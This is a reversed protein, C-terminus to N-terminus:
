LSADRTGMSVTAVESHSSQSMVDKSLKSGGGVGDEGPAVGLAGPIKLGM